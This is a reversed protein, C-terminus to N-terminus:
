PPPNSPDSPPTYPVTSIAVNTQANAPQGGFSLRCTGTVATALNSNGVDLTWPQGDLGKGTASWNFSSGNAACATIAVFTVKISAPAALGLGSFVGGPP